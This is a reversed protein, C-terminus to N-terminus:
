RNSEERLAKELAARADSLGKSMGGQGVGELVAIRKAELGLMYYLVLRKFQKASGDAVRMIARAIREREEQSEAEFIPDRSPGQLEVEGADVDEGVPLDKLRKAYDIGQRILLNDLITCLYTYVSSRGSFNPVNMIFALWVQQLVDEARDPGVARAAHKFLRHAYLAYATNVIQSIRRGIADRHAILQSEGRTLDTQTLALRAPVERSLYARLAAIEDLCARDKIPIAPTLEPPKLRLAETWIRIRELQNAAETVVDRVDRPTPLPTM